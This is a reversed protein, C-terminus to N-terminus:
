IVRRHLRLGEATGFLVVPGFERLSEGVLAGAQEAGPIVAGTEPSM